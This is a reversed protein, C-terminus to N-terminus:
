GAPLPSLFQYLGWVTAILCLVGAIGALPQGNLGTVWSPARGTYAIAETADIATLGWIWGAHLGWALGLSGGDITRAAVLVMGMLWLGPLQPLTQEREWVLHLLAFIASSLIAAIWPSYDTKLLDLLLGRFIAEETLGIWLGLVLIPVGQATLRSLNEGRWELWGVGRELGFTAGLGALAIAAGVALSRGLSGNWVLGCDGLTSGDARLMLGFALPAIAYLSGLLPLKQAPTLPAFPRWQYHRALPIGLPLWIALWLLLFGAVKLAAPVTSLSLDSM